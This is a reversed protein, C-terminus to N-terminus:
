SIEKLNAGVQGNIQNRKEDREIHEGVPAYRKKHGGAGHVTVAEEGRIMMNDSNRFMKKTCSIITVPTLVKCFDALIGM